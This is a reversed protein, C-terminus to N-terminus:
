ASVCIAAAMRVRESGVSGSVEAKNLEVFDRTWMFLIWERWDSFAADLGAVGEGDACHVRCTARKHTLM